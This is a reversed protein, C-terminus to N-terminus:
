GNFVWAPPKSVADDPQVSISALAELSSQSWKTMGSNVLADRVPQRGHCLVQQRRM